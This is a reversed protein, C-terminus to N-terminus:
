GGELVFGIIRGCIVVGTWLCLSVIGAIKAARPTDALEDWLHINRFTIVHFYVMNLGALLLLVMKFQFAFIAAYKIAESSFLLFGTVLAVAFAGWTLPLVDQMLKRVSKRHAPLGMLRMDVISITGVVTVIAVVHISEIWPFLSNGERIATAFGSDHLAQLMDHISM